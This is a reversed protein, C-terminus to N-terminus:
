INQCPTGGKLYHAIPWSCHAKPKPSHAKPSHVMTNSNSRHTDPLSRVANNFGTDTKIYLFLMPVSAWVPATENCKM